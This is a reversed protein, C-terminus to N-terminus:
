LDLRASMVKLYNKCIEKSDMVGLWTMLIVPLLATVSMPLCETMWYVAIILVSYGCRAAQVFAYVFYQLGVVNSGRRDTLM